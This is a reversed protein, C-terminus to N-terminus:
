WRKGIHIGLYLGLFMFHNSEDNVYIPIKTYFVDVAVGAEIATVFRDKSGFDFNLGTRAHGGLVPKIENM